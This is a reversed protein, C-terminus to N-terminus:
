LDKLSTGLEVMDEGISFWGTPPAKIMELESSTMLLLNILVSSQIFCHDYRVSDKCLKQM